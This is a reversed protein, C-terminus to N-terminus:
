NIEANTYVEQVDDDDELAELMKDFQTQNNEAVENYVTPFMSLEATAFTYGAEQLAEKVEPFTAPDTFIEFVDESVEVDDAGAEIAELMFEEEDVTLGERLIVLYGKRD